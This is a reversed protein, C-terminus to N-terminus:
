AAQDTEAFSTQFGIRKAFEIRQRAISLHAEVTDIGIFRMGELMAAKGTSGSGMFMDLIIGNDPTVLRCLYRMLDTPKVTPHSNPASRRTGRAQFSGPNASGSSWHLPKEEMGNCGENRDERSVKACYFFRAASGIDGYFPGEVRDRDAYVSGTPMSRETGTVRSSAGTGAPFLQLVEPSGDHILNAPWRGRAPDMRRGPRMAFNTGGDATYRNMGSPENRGEAAHMTAWTSGAGNRRVKEDGVPIECARINLVGCGDYREVNSLVNGALPRRAVTIPEFAPKLGTGKGLHKGKLNQSKPYGSGYIWLITTVIEFGADEIACVLRHATRPSGFALLHGGPKLVRYAHRWTAPDFAVSGGDWQAGMFGAAKEGTRAGRRVLHYPPDTVMADASMPELQQLVERCDGHFLQYRGEMNMVVADTAHAARM